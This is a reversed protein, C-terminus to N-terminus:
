PVKRPENRGQWWPCAGGNGRERNRLVSVAEQYTVLTAAHVNVPHHCEPGGSKDDGARVKSCLVSAGWSIPLAQDGPVRSQTSVVCEELRTQNALSRPPLDLSYPTCTRRCEHSGFSSGTGPMSLLVGGVVVTHAGGARTYVHDVRPCHTRITQKKEGRRSEEPDPLIQQRTILLAAKTALTKM